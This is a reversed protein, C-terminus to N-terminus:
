LNKNPLSLKFNSLEMHLCKKFSNKRYLSVLAMNSAACVESHNYVGIMALIFRHFIIINGIEYVCCDFENELDISLKGCFSIWIERTM